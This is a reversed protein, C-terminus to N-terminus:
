RQPRFSVGEYWTRAADSVLPGTTGTKIPNDDVLVRIRRNSSVAIRGLYAQYLFNAGDGSATQSHSGKSERRVTQCDMRRYLQMQNTSFGAMIRWDANTAVSCWFNVWVDYTGADPVAFSTALQPANEPSHDASALLEEASTKSPSSRLHWHNAQNGPILAAGNALTTNKTTAHVFITAGAKESRREVLGVPMADYRQAASYTCRLWLLVNWDPGSEPMIPRLNDHTSHQTVPTWAFTAGHDRTVGKWIEHCPSFPANDDLAGPRVARPDFCTSIFMIDPDNPSLCGLGVYDAESSYLKYGAHCLYTSTWNSGDYRCFFFAHNPNIRRDNGRTDDNIRTTIIAEISGDPYRQLDDNWCRYNTQGPASVTGNTFIKTFQTIVPAAQDFINTDVMTGDSTFSQDKTVYGHYMSTSFDRPHTETGIFDIRNSGNDCYKFYGSVYGVNINTLSAILQGGFAWSDGADKSMLINPSGHDNARVFNYTRDEESLYHPNSYTANFDAGHPLTTWDFVQEASWNSGDWNRWYSKKEVNHGSYWALYKGDRRVLFAATNHDDTVFARRNSAGNKLIFRQRSGNTMNYIVAEVNGARSAGGVGSGCADSGVVLIGRKADVVAREDSYWTWAGNDNFQVLNGDVVDPPTQLTAATQSQFGSSAAETLGALTLTLWASRFICKPVLVICRM